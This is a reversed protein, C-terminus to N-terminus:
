AAPKCAGPLKVGGSNWNANTYGMGTLYEAMEIASECEIQGNNNLDIQPDSGGEISKLYIPNVGEGNAKNLNAKQMYVYTLLPTNAFAQFGSTITTHSAHFVKLQTMDEIFSIDSIKGASLNQTWKTRLTADGVSRVKLAELSVLKAIETSFLAMDVFNKTFNLDLYTLQTLKGLTALNTDDVGSFSLDLHTLKPLSELASMNSLNVNAMLNIFEIQPFAELGELSEILGETKIPDANKEWGQPSTGFTGNYTIDGGKIEGTCHITKVNAIELETAFQETMCARLEADPMKEIAKVVESTECEPLQPVVPSFADLTDQEFICPLLLAGTLDISALNPLSSLLTREEDSMFSYGSLIIETLGTFAEIGSVSDITYSANCELSTFENLLSWNNAQATDTLCQALGIDVVNEIAFPVEVCAPIITNVSADLANDLEAEVECSLMTGAEVNLEALSPIAALVAIDSVKFNPYADITVSELAPLKQLGEMDLIELESGCSIATVQELEVWNNESANQELCTQLAADKMRVTQITGDTEKDEDLLVTNCGVLSLIALAGAIHNMKM